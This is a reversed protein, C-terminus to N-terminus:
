DGFWRQNVPNPRVGRRRLGIPASIERKSQGEERTSVVMLEFRGDQIAFEQSRIPVISDYAEAFTETHNLSRSRERNRGFAVEYFVLNIPM